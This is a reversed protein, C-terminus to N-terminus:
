AIKEEKSKYSPCDRLAGSDFCGPRVVCTCGAHKGKIGFGRKKYVCTMCSGVTM